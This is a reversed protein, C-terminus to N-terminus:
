LLDFIKSKFFILFHTLELRTNFLHFRLMLFFNFLQIVSNCEQRNLRKLHRFFLFSWCFFVINRLFKVGYFWFFTYAHFPLNFLGNIVRWAWGLNYARRFELLIESIPVHLLGWFKSLDDGITWHIFMLFLMANDRDRWWDLTFESLWIILPFLFLITWKPLLLSTSQLSALTVETDLHVIM